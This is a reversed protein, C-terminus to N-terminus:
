RSKLDPLSTKMLFVNYPGFLSMNFYVDSGDNWKPYMFPAYLAPYDASRVAVRADDWPGTLDPATRLVILGKNDILYMMLWRQYHSNWRM